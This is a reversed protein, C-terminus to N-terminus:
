LLEEQRTLPNWMRRVFSTELWPQPDRSLCPQRFICGSFEACSHDLNVDWVDSEWMAKMRAVDRLLQSYWRDIMWQPRYTLAQQTDYKTKLISVGRVLFGQLPIGSRAAGWCYGTFQSRLDWQKAWSAGLSSTTKDDEGFVGNAYNCIMDMRGSYILPDGTEPHTADIPEAFSFEVGIDGSPLHIPTAQDSSLPYQHFYYELAGAMREASKASDPPCEFDGYAIFFARLGLAISDQESRGDRYFAKRATELGTAYAAGAHLHVSQAVPKWHHLYEYAFRQPCARFSAIITSDLVQPFPPRATM